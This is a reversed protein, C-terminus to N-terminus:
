RASMRMKPLVPNWLEIEGTGKCKYCWHHVESLITTVRGTGGCRKHNRLTGLGSGLCFKCSRIFTKRYGGFVLPSDSGRAARYTGTGQCRDCPVACNCLEAGTVTDTNYGRGKCGECTGGNKTPGLGKGLEHLAHGEVTMMPRPSAGDQKVFFGFEELSCLFEYADTGERFKVADGGVDPHHKRAHARYAGKVAEITCPMSIGLVIASRQAQQQTNYDSNM